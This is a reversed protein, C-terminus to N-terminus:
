SKFYEEISPNVNGVHLDALGGSLIDQVAIATGASVTTSMQARTMVTDVTADDLGTAKQVASTGAKVIGQASSYGAKLVATASEADATATYVRQYAKITSLVMEKEGDTESLGSYNLKELD